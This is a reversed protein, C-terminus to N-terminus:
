ETNHIKCNDIEKLVSHHTTVMIQTNLKTSLTNLFDKMVVVRKTDLNNTPEDIMFLNIHPILIQKIAFLLSLCFTVEQAGSLEDWLDFNIRSDLKPEFGFGFVKHLTQMKENVLSIYRKRLLAPLNKRHLITQVESLIAKKNNVTKGAEIKEGFEKIVKNFNTINNEITKKHSEKTKILKHSANGSSGVINFAIKKDAIEDYYKDYKKGSGDVSDLQEREENINNKAQLLLARNHNVSDLKTEISAVRGKTESGNLKLTSIRDKISDIDKIQEEITSLMDKTETPQKEMDWYMHAMINDMVDRAKEMESYTKMHKDALGKLADKNKILEDVKINLGYKTNTLEKKFKAMGLPGEVDHKDFMTKMQQVVLARDQEISRLEELITSENKLACIHPAIGEAEEIASLCLPCTLVQSMDFGDDFIFKVGTSKIHAIQEHLAKHKKAKEDLVGKFEKLEKIEDELRYLDSSISALEASADALDNEVKDMKKREEFGAKYEKVKTSHKEDWYCYSNALNTKISEVVKLGSEKFTTLEKRIDDLQVKAIELDKDIVTIGSLTEKITEIQKEQFRINEKISTETDADKKYDKLTSEMAEIELRMEKQKSDLEDLEKREKVLEQDIDELVKLDNAKEDEAYDIKEQFEDYGPDLVLDSNVNKLLSVREDFKYENITFMDFMNIRDAESGSMLRTINNQSQLVLNIFVKNDIGLIKKIYNYVDSTGDFEESVTGDVNFITLKSYGKVWPEGKKKGLKGGNRVTYKINNFIFDVECYYEATGRKLLRIKNGKFQDNFLANYIAEFITSKGTGNEGTVVLNNGGLDLELNDYGRYNHLKLTLIQM